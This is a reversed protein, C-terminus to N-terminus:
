RLTLESPLQRAVHRAFISELLNTNNYGDDDNTDARTSEITLTIKTSTEMVTEVSTLLIHTIRYM